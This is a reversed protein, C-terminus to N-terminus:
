NVDTGACVTTFPQGADDLKHIKARAEETGFLSGSKLINSNIELARTESRESRFCAGM